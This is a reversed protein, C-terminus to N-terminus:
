ASKSKLLAESLAREHMLKEMYAGLRDIRKLRTRRFQSLFALLAVKYIVPAFRTIPQVKTNKSPYLRNRKVPNGHLFDNRTDYLEKYLRQVLNVKHDKKRYTVKYAKRAIAKDIWDYSGLLSLATLLNANDTRPHSLIELASLWLSASSGYDYITSHNKFPMSAAQYAMELSRFLTRTSWEERRQRIFRREWAKQLLKFLQDEVTDTLDEPGGLSPSIQGRFDQHEDDFGLVSPTSKIFGDNQRSGTVPYFDFFDSYLPYAVFRSTLSHEHGKIITSIALANRFGTLADINKLYDPADDKVILASPYIRRGFQDEFNEILAKAFPNTSISEGVRPDSCPVISIYENGASEHIIVNPLVFFISWM